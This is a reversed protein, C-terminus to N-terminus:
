AAPIEVDIEASSVTGGDPRKGVVKYTRDGSPEPLTFRTQFLDEAVVVGDADESVDLVDFVTVTRPKTRALEARAGQYRISLMPIDPDLSKADVDEFACAGTTCVGAHVTEPLPVIDRAVSQWARGDASVLATSLHSRADRQLRLWPRDGIDVQSLDRLYPSRTQGGGADDGPNGAGFDERTDLTRTRLVLRGGSDVGFFRSWTGSPLAQCPV